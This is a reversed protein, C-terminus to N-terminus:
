KIKFVVTVNANVKVDGPSIPTEPAAAADMAMGKNFSQYYPVYYSGNESVSQVGDLEVGLGAAIASAKAKAEQSASTLATRKLETQKADDITFSISSVNNAGAKVAADIVAGTKSLDNVTVKISNSTQFGRNVSKRLNDDWETKQYLSYSSTQVNKGSIGMASLAAMVKQTLSANQSQSDQATQALTEVSFWIEAKTPEAAADFSGSVSITRLNASATDTNSVPPISQANANFADVSPARISDTNVLGGGVLVAVVLLGALLWGFLKNM